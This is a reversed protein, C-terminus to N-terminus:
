NIKSDDECLLLSEIFRKRRDVDKRLTRRADMFARAVASSFNDVRTPDNLIALVVEPCRM